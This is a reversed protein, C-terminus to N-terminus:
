VISSQVHTTKKAVNDLTDIENLIGTSFSTLSAGFATSCSHSSIPYWRNGLEEAVALEDPSSLSWLMWLRPKVVGTSNFRSLFSMRRFRWWWRCLRRRWPPINSSSSSRITVLLSQEEDMDTSSSPSSRWLHKLSEEMFFGLCWWRMSDLEFQLLENSLELLEWEGDGGWGIWTSSSMFLLLGM